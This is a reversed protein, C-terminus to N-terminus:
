YLQEAVGEGIRAEGLLRQRMAAVARRVVFPQFEEAVAHEAAGDRILEVPTERLEGFALQGLEARAQHALLRQHLYRPGKVERYARAGGRHGIGHERVGDFGHDAGYEEIAAVGRGLGRYHAGEAREQISEVRAPHLFIRLRPELLEHVRAALWQGLVPHGGGVAGRM